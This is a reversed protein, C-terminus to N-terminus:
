WIHALIDLVAGHYKGHVYWCRDTSVWPKEVAHSSVLGPERCRKEEHKHYFPKCEGELQVESQVAQWAVLSNNKRTRPLVWGWQPPCQGKRRQHSWQAARLAPGHQQSTARRTWHPNGKPHGTAWGMPEAPQVRLTGFKQRDASVDAPDCVSPFKMNQWM